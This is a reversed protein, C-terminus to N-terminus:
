YGAPLVVEEFPVTDQCTGAIPRENADTQCKQVPGNMYEMYLDHYGALVPSRYNGWSNKIRFFHITAADDLAAALAEPRTEVTGAALTGFGPVNDVEYDEMLVMHGGQSGPTAPPKLFKGDQTMANFDVYWSLVVPQNDHMAKQIRRLFARREPAVAASPYPVTTWALPGQRADDWGQFRARGMADALTATRTQSTAPDKLKVTFEAARHVHVGAPVTTAHELTTAADKGFITDLEAVVAPDLGWAKDLEARVLKRDRRAAPDKLAGTTLSVRIAKLANEQAASRIATGEVAIFDAAKYLGYRTTLGVAKGWSGGETIQGAGQEAIQEFWYWYNVYSESFTHETGTAIKVLSEMWGISAYTWCNGISQDKVSSQPIQTVAEGSADSRSTRGSCALVPLLLTSLLLARAHASRM